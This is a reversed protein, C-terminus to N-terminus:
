GFEILAVSVIGLAIGVKNWTTLQEQFLVVGALVILVLNLITFVAGAKSLFEFKLSSAWFVTGILYAMMGLAFLAQNHQVAWKKFLIDALVEILVALLILAFFTAKLWASSDM